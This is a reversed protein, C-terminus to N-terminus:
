ARERRQARRSLLAAQGAVRASLGEIIGQLRRVEASEELAVCRVHWTRWLWKLIRAAYSGGNGVDAPLQVTFVWREGDPTM